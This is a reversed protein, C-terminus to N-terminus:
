FRVAVGTSVRYNTSAQPGAESDEGAVKNTNRLYEFQVLRVGISRTPWFNVGGGLAFSFSTGSDAPFSRTFNLGGFLVHGFVDVRRFNASIRPGAMYTKLSATYQSMVQSAPAGSFDAEASLHRAFNYAASAEWGNFGARSWGSYIASVPYSLRMYGAFVDFRSPSDQCQSYTVLLVLCLPLLLRKDM